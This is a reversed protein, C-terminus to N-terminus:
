NCFHFRNVQLEVPTVQKRITSGSTDSEGSSPLLTSNTHRVEQELTEQRTELSTMHNKM